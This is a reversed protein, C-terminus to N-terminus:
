NQESYKSLSYTTPKGDEAKNILFRAIFHKNPHDRRSVHDVSRLLKELKRQAFILGSISLAFDSKLRM